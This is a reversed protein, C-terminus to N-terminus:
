EWLLILRFDDLPIDIDLQLFLYQTVSLYLDIQRSDFYRYNQNAKIRRLLKVRTEEDFATPDNRLLFGNITDDKELTMSPLEVHIPYLTKLANFCASNYNFEVTEIIHGVVSVYDWYFVDKYKLKYMRYCDDLTLDCEDKEYETIADDMRCSLLYKKVERLRPDAKLGLRTPLLITRESDYIFPRDKRLYKNIDTVGM